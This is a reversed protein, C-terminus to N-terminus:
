RMWCRQGCAVSSNRRAGGPQRRYALLASIDIRETFGEVEKDTMGAGLDRHPIGLRTAWKEEDLVQGRGAIVLNIGIDEARTMHWLLWALSNTSPHPRQRIQEETVGSLLLDQNSPDGGAVAAAHSRAHQTLFFERIDM